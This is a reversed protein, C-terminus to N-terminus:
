KRALAERDIEWIWRVRDRSSSAKSAMVGGSKEAVRLDMSGLALIANAKELKKKDMKSFNWIIKALEDAKESM